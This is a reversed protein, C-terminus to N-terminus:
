HLIMARLFWCRVLALFGILTFLLEFSRPIIFMQCINQFIIIVFSSLFCSLGQTPIGASAKRLHMATEPLQLLVQFYEEPCQNKRIKLLHITHIVTVPTFDRVRIGFSLM